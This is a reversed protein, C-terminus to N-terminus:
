TPREMEEPYNYKAFGAICLCLVLILKREGILCWLLSVAILIGGVRMGPQIDTNESLVLGGNGSGGGVEM